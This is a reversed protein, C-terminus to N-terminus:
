LSPHLTRQRISPQIRLQAHRPLPAIEKKSAYRRTDDYQDDNLYFLYPEIEHASQEGIIYKSLGSRRPYLKVM